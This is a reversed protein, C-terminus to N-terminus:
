ANSVITDVGAIQVNVLTRLMQEEVEKLAPPIRIITHSGFVKIFSVVQHHM